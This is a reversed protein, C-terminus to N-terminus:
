EATLVDESRPKLEEPAGIAEWRQIRMQAVSWSNQVAGELWMEADDWDLAAQFHSWFLGVYGEAQGGFREFVRRLRGVHQPSVNGVRRSWAEDSYAAKPMEASVLTERWSNIVAGKEWNTQSVLNNWQGIHTTSLEEVVPSNLMMSEEGFGVDGIGVGVYRDSFVVPEEVSVSVTM